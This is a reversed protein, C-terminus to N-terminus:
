VAGIQLIQGDEIFHINGNHLRDVERKIAERSQIKTHYLYIAAPVDGLKKLEGELYAPTLHGTIDALDKSDNPLSTEVFVAKLGDAKGAIHWIEDTPGTDGVFVVAGEEAKVVYGVTEVTHHVKTASVDLGTVNITKGEQVPVFKLVPDKKDPLSSFDPWIVNNFFCRHLTEIVYPTGHISLPLKKKLYCINDALFMIDCVHDLHAHTVFIDEINLQEEINLVSTITGGDILVKGNILFSTTNYGPLQSGHCGLVRIQM